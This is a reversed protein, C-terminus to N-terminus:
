FPCPTDLQWKADKSPPTTLPDVCSETRDRDEHITMPRVCGSLRDIDSRSSSGAYNSYIGVECLRHIASGYCLNVSQKLPAYFRLSFQVPSISTENGLKRSSAAQSAAARRSPINSADHGRADQPSRPVRQRIPFPRGNGHKRTGADHRGNAPHLRVSPTEGFWAGPVLYGEACDDRNHHPFKGTDPPFHRSLGPGLPHNQSWPNAARVRMAAPAFFRQNARSTNAHRHSPTKRRWAGRGRM